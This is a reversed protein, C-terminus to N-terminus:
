NGFIRELFASKKREGAQVRLFIYISIIKIKRRPGPLDSNEFSNHRVRLIRPHQRWRLSCVNATM